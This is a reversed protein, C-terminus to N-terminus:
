PLPQNWETWGLGNKGDASTFSCLARPFRSVKGEHELLAPAFAVPTISM